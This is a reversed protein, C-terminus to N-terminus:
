KLIKKGNMIYIGKPLANLNKGVFRGDISFIRDDAKQSADVAIGSIGAMENGFSFSMTGDDNRTIDYIPKNMYYTGDNNANNLKAAPTSTNTLLNNGNYPYPDGYENAYGLTDDAAIITCRQRSKTNVSNNTWASASYDVHVVLLGGGRLGADWGSQQRNELMYYENTHGDNYIIYASGDDATPKMGSVITDNSLVTPTLWGSVMREYSTYNAPCFSDNNYCGYCMISWRGMGYIKNDDTGYMDPLGLCHSFEHCITGIGDVSGDSGLENSCAYTNIVVGDLTPTEGYVYTKKASDYWSGASKLDWEHPWITNADDYSAEGYGAYLIFIQDVEGDGDWDYQSFDIDGDISKCASVIMEAIKDYQDDGNSDNGGYYAYGNPMAIPGAVDFDLEFQGYSQSLFYDKVSGRFKGDSFGTENAMRKFLVLSDAEAFKVDSFEILIILGKKKGSYVTNGSASAKQAAAKKARSALLPLRKAEAKATLKAMDATKFLGMANDKIFTRGDEAQWYHCFEDGRLEVKVQSGDAMTVTKYQGRKAPVAMALMATLSLM